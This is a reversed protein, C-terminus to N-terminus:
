DDQLDKVTLKYYNLLDEFQSDNGGNMVNETVLKNTQTGKVVIPDKDYKHNTIIKKGKM